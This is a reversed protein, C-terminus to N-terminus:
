NKNKNKLRLAMAHGISGCKSWGTNEQAATYRFFSRPERYLALVLFMGNSGTDGSTPECPRGYPDLAALTRKPPGAFESRESLAPGKVKAA